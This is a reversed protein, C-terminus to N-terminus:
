GRRRGDPLGLRSRRTRVARLSWGTKKVVQAIPLTRLLEDEEPTWLRTGPVLTGRRKHAESRKKRAEESHHTGLHARRVAEVVHSPSAQGAQIRRDQPQGVKQLTPWKFPQFWYLFQRRIKGSFSPIKDSRDGWAGSRVATWPGSDVPLRRPSSEHVGRSRSPRAVQGAAHPIGAMPLAAEGAVHAEGARWRGGRLKWWHVMLPEYTRIFIEDGAVALSSLVREGLKNRALLEYKPSASLVLTDGNMTPVYLRGAPHVPSSWTAGSVREGKWLDEVAGCLGGDFCNEDLTGRASGLLPSLRGNPFM